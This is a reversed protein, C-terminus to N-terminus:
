KNIKDNAYAYLALEFSNLFSYEIKNFGEHWYRSEIFTNSTEELKIYFDDGFEKSTLAKYSYMFAEILQNKTEEKVKNFLIHLKHINNHANGENLIISKLYLECAFSKLVVEPFMYQAKIKLKELMEVQDDIKQQNYNILDDAASYFMNASILATKFEEMQFEGM